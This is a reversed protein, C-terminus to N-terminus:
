AGSGMEQRHSWVVVVVGVVIIGAALIVRSNLPEGALVWGLMVAVVPNVYAYTSARALTTNRLLWIYATFGIVAGFVVLYAFALWSKLSISTPDLRAWEGSVTGLAVLFLGGMLMKMGTMMLPSEPAPTHRSYVSGIAWSLSALVLVSAGVPDVELAGGLLDAPSVLVAVGVFGLLLGAMEGRKPRMGRPRAWDILVVWLPETAVLLAALGSPVTQEAWVVGGNGGVLLLAGVIAASIWHGAAPRRAGRLRMVAYLFAGAVTFRIGAMLFPPITEIAFRIALYTSGWILYVATFATLLRIRSSSM